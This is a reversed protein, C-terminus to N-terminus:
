RVEAGKGEINTLKYTNAESGKELCGTMEHTGSKSHGKAKTQANAATGMPIAALGCAVFAALGLNGLRTM